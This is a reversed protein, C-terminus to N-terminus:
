RGNSTRNPRTVAPHSDKIKLADRSGKTESKLSSLVEERKHDLFILGPPRALALTASNGLAFLEDIDLQYVPAVLDSRGSKRLMVVARSVAHKLKVKIHEAYDSEDVGPQRTTVTTKGLLAELLEKLPSSAFLRVVDAAEMKLRAKRLDFTHWPCTTNTIELQLAFRWVLRFMRIVTDPSSSHSGNSYWTLFADEGAIAELGPDDHKTFYGRLIEMEDGRRAAAQRSALPLSCQEFGSLLGLATTPRALKVLSQQEQVWRACALEFNQGLVIKTKTGDQRVLYYTATGNRDRRKRMGAPSDTRRRM